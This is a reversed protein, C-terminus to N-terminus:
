TLKGSPLNETCSKAWFFWRAIASVGSPKWPKWMMLDSLNIPKHDARSIRVQLITVEGCGVGIHLCLRVDGVGPSGCGFSEAKGQQKFWWKPIENNMASRCFTDFDPFIELIPSSQCMAMKPVFLGSGCPIKSTADYTARGTDFQHLRKHIEICCACAKCCCNLPCLLYPLNTLHIHM